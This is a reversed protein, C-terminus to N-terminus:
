PYRQSHDLTKTGAGESHTKPRKPGTLARSAVGQCAFENPPREGLARHPRSANYGRRWAEIIEKAECVKMFCHANLWEQRFTGNFSELHANDAPNGPRSFDIQV